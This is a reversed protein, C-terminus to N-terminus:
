PIGNGFDLISHPVLHQNDTQLQGIAKEIEESYICQPDTAITPVLYCLSLRDLHAQSFASLSSSCIEVRRKKAAEYVVAHIRYGDPVVVTLINKAFPLALLILKTPWDFQRIGTGLHKKYFNHIKNSIGDEIFSLNCFPNRSYGSLEAWRAYQKNTWCIPQFSVIGYSHEITIERNSSTGTSKRQRTGYLIVAVMHTGCEKKIRNAYQNDRIYKEMYSLPEYLTSWDAGKHVGPQLIWVIPYGDLPNVDMVAEKSFDRVYIKDKGKAHARLTEKLDIGDLISGEFEVTKRVKQKRLSTKMAEYSLYTLLRDWPLWTHSAMDSGLSKQLEELYDWEYPIKMSDAPNGNPFTRVYLHEKVQLNNKNYIVVHGTEKGDGPDNGILECDPFEEPTAWPFDMFSKVLSGTFDKSMTEHASRITKFLDPVTKNNLLCINKLYEEFSHFRELDQNRSLHMVNNDISLFYQHYADRLHKLFIESPNLSIRDQSLFLSNHVPLRNNGYESVIAPFLDTHEVAILPHVVVRRFKKQEETNGEPLRAPKISPDNIFQEIRLWHAMGCVFLVRPFQELLYKLRSAMVIERRDDIEDERQAEAFPANRAIYSAIDGTLYKPNEIVVPKYAADPIDNMDIGCLPIDLEISCRIAEIISDVPSLCLLSHGTIGLERYLVDPPIESLDTCTEKQLEMVKERLSARIVYNRKLLGLMVPFPKPKESCIDLERLWDRVSAAANLGLEVAIAEPQTNPNACIRNVESAFIHNFHESPVPYLEASKYHIKLSAEPM